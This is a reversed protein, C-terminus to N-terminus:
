AGPPAIGLQAFLGVLGGSKSANVKLSTIKGDKITLEGDEQPNSFSKGTAPIVGMGMATLDWDGTHTGTLQTSTKGVGNNLETVKFNYNLDPFAAAMGKTMGIYEHVNVPEPTAGSFMFGDACCAAATEFDGTEFAKVFTNVLEQNDM